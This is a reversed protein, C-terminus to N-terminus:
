SRRGGIFSKVRERAQQDALCDSLVSARQSVRRNALGNSGLVKGSSDIVWSPNPVTELIAALESARRGERGVRMQINKALEVHPLIEAYDRFAMEQRDANGPRKEQKEFLLEDLTRLTKDFDRPSLTAAYIASILEGRDSNAM